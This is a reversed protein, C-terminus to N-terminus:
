CCLICECLKRYETDPGRNRQKVKIFLLCLMEDSARRKICDAVSSFDLICLIIEINSCM